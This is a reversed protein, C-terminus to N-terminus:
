SRHGRVTGSSRAFATAFSFTGALAVSTSVFTALSAASCALTSADLGVADMENRTDTDYVFTSDAHALASKTWAGM